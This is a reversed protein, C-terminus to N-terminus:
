TKKHFLTCSGEMDRAFHLSPFGSAADVLRIYKKYMAVDTSEDIVIGLFPSSHLKADLEEQITVDIADLLELHSQHSTCFKSDTFGPTHNLAQLKCLNNFQNLPLCNKVITYMTQLQVELGVDGEVAKQADREAQKEFAAQLTVRHTKAHVGVVVFTHEPNRMEHRTFASAKLNRSGSAFSNKKEGDRCWKCVAMVVGDDSVKKELWPFQKEWTPQWKRTTKSSSAAESELVDKDSLEAETSASEPPSCSRERSSTFYRRLAMRCAGDPLQEVRAKSKQARAFSPRTYRGRIALAPQSAM